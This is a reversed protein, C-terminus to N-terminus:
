KKKKNPRVGQSRMYALLDEQSKFSLLRVTFGDSTRKSNKVIM